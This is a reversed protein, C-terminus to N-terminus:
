ALPRFMLILEKKESLISRLGISLQPGTLFDGQIIFIGDLFNVVGVSVKIISGFAVSSVPFVSLTSGLYSIYVCSNAIHDNFEAFSGLIQPQVHFHTIPLHGWMCHPPREMSKYSNPKGEEFRMILIFFVSHILCDLDKVPGLLRM